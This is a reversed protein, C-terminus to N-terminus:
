LDRPRGVGSHAGVENEGLEHEFLGGYIDALRGHWEDVGALYDGATARQPVDIGVTRYDPTKM